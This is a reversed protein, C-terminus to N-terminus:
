VENDNEDADWIGKNLAENISIEPARLGEHIEDFRDCKLYVYSCDRETSIGAGVTHVSTISVDEPLNLIKRIMNNNLKIKALKIM